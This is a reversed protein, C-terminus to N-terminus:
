CLLGAGTDEGGSRDCGIDIEQLAIVDADIARLEAIVADLKYGREINWQAASVNDTFHHLTCVNCHM